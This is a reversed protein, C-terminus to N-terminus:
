TDERSLRRYESGDRKREMYGYDVLSRRLVAWDEFTHWDRLTDNIEKESYTRDRSFKGALYSLILQKNAHKSPWVTVRGNEDLFNDLQRQM